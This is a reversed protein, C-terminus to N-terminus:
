KPPDGWTDDIKDRLRDETEGNSDGVEMTRPEKKVLEKFLKPILMALFQM